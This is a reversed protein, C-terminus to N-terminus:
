DISPLKIKKISRVTASHCTHCLSPLKLVKGHHWADARIFIKVRAAHEAMSYISRPIAQRGCYIKMHYSGSCFFREEQTFVVKHKWSPLLQPTPPTPPLNGRPHAGVMVVDKSFLCFHDSREDSCCIFASFMSSLSSQLLHMGTTTSFALESYMQSLIYECCKCCYIYERYEWLLSIHTLAPTCIEQSYNWKKKDLYGYIFLM